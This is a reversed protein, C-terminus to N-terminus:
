RITSFVWFFDEKNKGLSKLPTWYVKRYDLKTSQTTDAQECQVLSAPVLSTPFIYYDSTM